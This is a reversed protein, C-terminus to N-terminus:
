YQEFTRFHYAEGLRSVESVPLDRFVLYVLPASDRYELESSVRVGRTTILREKYPNM